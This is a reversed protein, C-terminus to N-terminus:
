QNTENNYDRLDYKMKEIATRVENKPKQTIRSLKSINLTGDPKIIRLDGIVADAIAQELSCLEADDFASVSVPESELTSSGYTAGTETSFM